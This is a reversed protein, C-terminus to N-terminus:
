SDPVGSSDSEKIFLCVCAPLTTCLFTYMLQDINWSYYSLCFSLILLARICGGDLLPIFSILYLQVACSGSSERRGTTGNCQIQPNHCGRICRYLCKVCLVVGLYGIFFMPFKWRVRVCVHVCMCVCACVHVCVCPCVHVLVLVWPRM